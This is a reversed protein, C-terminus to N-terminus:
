ISNRFKSVVTKVVTRESNTLGIFYILIFLLIELCIINFCVTLWENLTDIRIYCSVLLSFLLIPLSRGYVNRIYEGKGMHIKPLVINIRILQATLEIVLHVVFVMEPPFGLRLSFYSIPLILLLYTCEYLQFTRINGEAQNVIRIPNALSQFIGIIIMIQLFRGTHDPVDVLWLSLIYEVNAIVPIGLICLLFFSFRSSALLLKGTNKLDGVVYSKTIQPNIATQFNGTFQYIASQVQVAIGRASNVVPGFFINLLINLGQTFGVSVFSGYSSWSIFAFIEKLIKTNWKFTVHTEKFRRSCYQVYIIRDILQILFLLVAYLVLNDFTINRVLLFAVGLKAFADFVSIYAFANMREHAIITANYPVSLINACVTLLSLQFVWFAAQMREGPIVMKEVLFWLGVTESVFLTIFCFIINVILVSSFVSKMDDMNGRGLYVTVYRSSATTMTGNLFSIFTVVGGVVNYIGFDVVGLAQLVIRSTYLQVGMIILMRIYLILTNKAIRKNNSSSNDQM